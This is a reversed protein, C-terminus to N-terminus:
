SSPLSPSIDASPSPSPSIDARIVVGGRGARGVCRELSAHRAALVGLQAELKRLEGQQSIMAAHAQQCESSCAHPAAGAVGATDYSSSLETQQDL